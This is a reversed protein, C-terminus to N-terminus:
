SNGDACDGNWNNCWHLWADDFNEQSIDRDCFVNELYAQRPCWVKKEPANNGMIFLEVVNGVM